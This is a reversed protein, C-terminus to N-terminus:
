SLTIPSQEVCIAISYLKMITHFNCKFDLLLMEVHNMDFINLNPLIEMIKECIHTNYNKCFEEKFDYHVWFGIKKAYVFDSGFIKILWKRLIEKWERLRLPSVKKWFSLSYAREIVRKELFPARIEISNKMGIVDSQITLSHLNELFLGYMYSTDRYDHSGIFSDMDTTIEEITNTPENNKLFLHAIKKYSSTYSNKKFSDRSSFLVTEFKWKTLMNAFRKLFTPLYKSIRFYYEMMIFLLNDYGYYCEDWGAGTFFVRHDKKAEKLIKDAYVSTIHFYPEWLIRITTDISDLADFWTLEIAHHILDLKETVYKSRIHDDDHESLKLTYTETKKTEHAKLANCIYSSDIWGSLFSVYGVDSPRMEDVITDLFTIEDLTTRPPSKKLKTYRWKEKIKGNKVIMYGANELKKIWQFFSLNHPFQFFNGLMYLKLAETDIKKEFSPDLAFLAPIESAFSVWKENEIYVLPKQGIFDRAIFVEDRVRDYLSFAFMWEISDLCEKGFHKYMHILVETDSTTTFIVGYDKELMTSLTRYNYIEGNFVITYDGNDISFPQTSRPDPDVISLRVHGFWIRKDESIWFSSADPWRHHMVQSAEYINEIIIPDARHIIGSIWCM